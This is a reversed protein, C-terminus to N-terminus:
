NHGFNEGDLVGRSSVYDHLAVPMEAGPSFRNSALSDHIDGDYLDPVDCVRDINWERISYLDRRRHIGIM